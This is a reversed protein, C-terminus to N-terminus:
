ARIIGSASLLLFVGFTNLVFSILGFKWFQMKSTGMLSVGLEDPLPSIIILAGILPWTWRLHRFQFIHIIKRGGYRKFIDFLEDTLSSTRVFQFITSDGILAGLGGLLAVSWVPLNESLIILVVSAPAITLTSVWFFGALFAGLYELKELHLLYAHVNDNRFLVIALAISIVFLGLHRYTNLRRSRHLAKKM